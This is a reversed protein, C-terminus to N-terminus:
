NKDLAIVKNVGTVREASRVAERKRGNDYGKPFTLTVVGNAVDIGYRFGDRGMRDILVARIRTHLAADRLEHETETAAVDAKSSSQEYEELRIENEVTGVGEVSKAVAEALEATERKRVTGGLLVEDGAARVDVRMGDVGLKELLTMRVKLELMLAPSEEDAVAVSAGLLLTTATLALLLRTVKPSREIFRM